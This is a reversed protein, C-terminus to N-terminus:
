IEIKEFARSDGTAPRYSLHGPKRSQDQRFDLEVVQSPQCVVRSYDLVCAITNWIAAATVCGVIDSAREHHRQHMVLLKGVLAREVEYCSVQTEHLEGLHTIATKMVEHAVLAPEGIVHAALVGLPAGKPSQTHCDATTVGFAGPSQGALHELLPNLFKLESMWTSQCVCDASM